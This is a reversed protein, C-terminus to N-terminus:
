MYLLDPATKLDPLRLLEAQLVNESVAGKSFNPVISNGKNTTRIKLPDCLAEIAGIKLLFRTLRCCM